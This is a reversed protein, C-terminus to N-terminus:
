HGGSSTAPAPQSAAKAPAQRPQFTMHVRHDGHSSGTMTSTKTNYVLTDGSASGRGVQHVHANGTLTAIGSPIDYDIKDARAKLLNGHDDTQQLHVAGTLVVRSIHSDTDFYIACDDGTVKLTGQTIVVDGKVHSISNPKALVNGYKSSVQIPQSRDSKKAQAVPLVLFVLLLLAVFICASKTTRVRCLRAMSIM